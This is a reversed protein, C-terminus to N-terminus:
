SLPEALYRRMNSGVARVIIERDAGAFPEFKAVYRIMGVGLLQSACLAARFTRQDTALQSGLAGFVHDLLFERLARAIIDHSAVSRILASFQEGGSADWRLLFARVMRDGLTQEPGDLLEAILEQPDFPIGPVAQVFLGEKGGFWHKVMAPDVGAQRAIERVTAGEFGAEAFVTRAAKLLETKTEYGHPRRGRRRSASTTKDLPSSTVQLAHGLFLVLEVFFSNGV